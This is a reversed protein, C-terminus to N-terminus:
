EREDIHVLRFLHRLVKIDNKFQEIKQDWFYYLRASSKGACIRALRGAQQELKGRHQATRLLVFGAEVAPLNLGEDIITGVGVRLDGSKLRALNAEIQRSESAKNTGWFIATEIGRAKLGKQWIECHDRRSTFLLCRNGESVEKLVYNVILKNRSRSFMAASTYDKFDNPQWGMANAIRRRDKAVLDKIKVKGSECIEKIEKSWSAGSCKAIKQRSEASLHNLLIKGTKCLRKIGQRNMYDFEFDTPVVIVEVEQVDGRAELYQREIKYAIPGFLDYTLFHKTDQRKITASVGVRYKCALTDLVEIYTKAAAHHCEDLGVFGFQGILKSLHNRASLQMAVTIRKGIKFKTGGGITGIENQPVGLRETIRRRWQTMLRKAPVLILAKRKARAVAGLLIETKGSGCGGEILCTEWQMITKIAEEQYDRLSFNPGPFDPYLAVPGWFRQDDVQAHIGADALDNLLEHLRGRPISLISKNNDDWKWMKLYQPCNPRYGLRRAREWDPNPHLFKDRIFLLVSRM